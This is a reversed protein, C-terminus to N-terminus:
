DRRRHRGAAARVASSAARAQPLLDAFQGVTRAVAGADNLWPSVNKAFTDHMLGQADLRTGLQTRATRARSEAASASTLGNELRVAELKEAFSRAMFEQQQRLGATDAGINNRQALLLDVKGQRTARETATRADTNEAQSYLNNITAEIASLRAASEISIQNAEANTKNIQAKTAAAEMAGSVARGLNGLTNQQNTAATGSPTGAGGQNYAMAPNLGAKKMDEVAVQYQTARMREQFQRNKKAQEANAANAREGGIIDMGGAVLQPIAAAVIPGM